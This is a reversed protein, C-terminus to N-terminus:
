GAHSRGGLLDPTWVVDLKELTAASATALDEARGTDADTGAHVLVRALVQGTLAVEHEARRSRAAEMSQELAVVAEDGRGDRWLAAGRIRLLLPLQASVGGLSRAQALADDATALARATDGALLQCEALRAGTELAEVHSGIARFEGLADEFLQAAEDFRGRCGAM